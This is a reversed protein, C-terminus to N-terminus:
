ARMVGPGQIYEESGAGVGTRREMMGSKLLLAEKQDSRYM